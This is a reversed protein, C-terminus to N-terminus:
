FVCRYRDITMCIVIFDSTAKFANWTPQSIDYVYEQHKQLIDLDMIFLYNQLTYALYFLDAISSGSIHIM